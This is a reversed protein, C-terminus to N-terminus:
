VSACWGQLQLNWHAKLLATEVVDADDGDEQLINLGEQVLGCLSLEACLQQHELCSSCLDEDKKVASTCLFM